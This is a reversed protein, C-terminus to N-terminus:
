GPARLLFWMWLVELDVAGGSGGWSGLMVIGYLCMPM